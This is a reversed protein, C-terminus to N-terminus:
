LACRSMISDLLIHVTRTDLPGTSVARTCVTNYSGGHCFYPGRRFLYFFPYYFHRNNNNSNNNNYPISNNNRVVDM